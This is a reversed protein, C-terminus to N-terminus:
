PLDHPCAMNIQGIGGFGQVNHSQHSERTPLWGYTSDCRVAPILLDWRCLYVPLSLEFSTGPSQGWLNKARSVKDGGKMTILWLWLYSRSDESRYDSANDVTGSARIAWNTFFPLAPSVAKIGPGPSGVHGWVGHSLQAQAGCDSLWHELAWSGRSSLGAHRSGLSRLLLLCWLSFGAGPFSSYGWSAAVLSFGEFCRLGTFGFTFLYIFNNFINIFYHPSFGNTFLVNWCNKSKFLSYSFTLLYIM